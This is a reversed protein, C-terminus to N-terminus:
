ARPLRTLLSFALARHQIMIPLLSDVHSALEGRVLPEAEILRSIARDHADVSAILYARDRAVGDADHRWGEIQQGYTELKPELDLRRALQMLREHAHRHDRVVQDAYGRVDPRAAARSAIEGREIETWHIAGLMEVVDLARRADPTVDAGRAEAAGGGERSTCECAGAMCALAVTAIHWSRLGSRLGTFRPALLMGSPLSDGLM